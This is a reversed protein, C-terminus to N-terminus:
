VHFGCNIEDDKATNIGIVNKVKISEGRRAFGDGTILILHSEATFARVLRHGGTAAASINCKDGTGAIVIRALAHTFLQLAVM